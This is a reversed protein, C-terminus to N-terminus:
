TGSKDRKEKFINEGKNYLRQFEQAMGLGLEPFRRAPIPQEWDWSRILAETFRLAIEKLEYDDVENPRVPPVTRMLRHM